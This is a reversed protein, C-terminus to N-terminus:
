SLVILPKGQKHIRYTFPETGTDYMVSVKTHTHTHVFLWVLSGCIKELSLMLPFIRGRDTEDM